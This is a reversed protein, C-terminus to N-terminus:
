THQKNTPGPVQIEEKHEHLLDDNEGKEIM